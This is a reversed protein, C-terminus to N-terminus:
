LNYSWIGHTYACGKLFQQTRFFKKGEVTLTICYVDPGSSQERYGANEKVLAPPAPGLDYLAVGISM